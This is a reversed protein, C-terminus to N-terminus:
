RPSTMASTLWWDTVETSSYRLTIEFSLGPSWTTNLTRRRCSLSRTNVTNRGPTTGASFWCYGLILRVECSLRIRLAICRARASSTAAPGPTKLTAACACLLEPAFGDVEGEDALGPLEAFRFFDIFCGLLDLPRSRPCFTGVGSRM